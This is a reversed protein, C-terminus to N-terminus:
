NNLGDVVDLTPDCFGATVVVTGGGGGDCQGWHQGPGLQEGMNHTAEGLAVTEPDVHDIEVYTPPQPTSGTPGSTGGSGGTWGGGSSGTWGGSSGGSGGGGSPQWNILGGSGGSGKGGGPKGVGKSGGPKCLCPKLGDADSYTAPSNRAYSYGHMQQSDTLDLLPDVLVFRGLDADYSRAGLQTLGLSADMTGDVFGREGHWNVATGRDQGFATLQRQVADVSIQGTGFHDSFMWSLTGDNERVAVTEGAHEYYRTAEETGAAPDWTVEMGPLYLTTAGNARRLLREGDADYVFETTSLGDTVLVLEGEPGWELTQDRDGTTRRITNGSEDYEFTSTSSGSVGTESVETVAHAPGQGEEPTTYSRTTGGGPGHRVEEVRNGVEDYTYSHWYPAAGGLEQVNPEAECAQEGTADPTWVQTMRRLHDYDFCQVDPAITEDTPEDSVRLVNGADDYDYTQTSLSGDGVQHVLSTMSLWNTKEDFDRTVWTKDSGVTGRQFQRQVLNGVKSYVTDTVIKDRGSLTTPNGLEDYKYSIAEAPLDGAGPVSVGDISGDPNYLTVFRYTGALEGV